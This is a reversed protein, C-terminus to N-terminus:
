ALHTGSAAFLGLQFKM